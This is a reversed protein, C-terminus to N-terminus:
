TTIDLGDVRGMHYTFYGIFTVGLWIPLIISQVTHYSYITVLLFLSIGLLSWGTGSQPVIQTIAGLVAM